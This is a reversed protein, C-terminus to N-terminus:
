QSVVLPFRLMIQPKGDGVHKAIGFRPGYAEAQLQGGICQDSKYITPKFALHGDSKTHDHCAHLVASSQLRVESQLVRYCCCSRRTQPDSSSGVDLDIADAHAILYQDLDHFHMVHPTALPHRSPLSLEHTGCRGPRACFVSSQLKRM